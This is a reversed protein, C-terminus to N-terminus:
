LNMSRNKQSWVHRKAKSGRGVAALAAVAPVVVV